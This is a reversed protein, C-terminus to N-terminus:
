ELPPCENSGERSAHMEELLEAKAGKGGDGVDAVGRGSSGRM